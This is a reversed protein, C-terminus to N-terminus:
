MSLIYSVTVGILASAIVLVASFLLVIVVARRKKRTKYKTSVTM